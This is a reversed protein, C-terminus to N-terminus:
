THTNNWTHILLPQWMILFGYDGGDTSSGGDVTVDIFQMQISRNLWELPAAIPPQACMCCYLLVEKRIGIASVLTWAVVAPFCVFLGAWQLTVYPTHKVMIIWIFVWIWYTKYIISKTRFEVSASCLDCVKGRAMRNRNQNALKRKEMIKDNWKPNQHEMLVAVFATSSLIEPTMHAAFSEGLTCM